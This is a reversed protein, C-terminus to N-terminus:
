NKSEWNNAFALLGKKLGFRLDSFTYGAPEDDINIGFWSGYATKRTKGDRYVRDCIKEIEFFTGPTRTSEFVMGTKITMKIVGKRKKRIYTYCIDNRKDITKQFKKEIKQLNKEFFILM